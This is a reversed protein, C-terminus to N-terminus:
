SEDKVEKIPGMHHGWQCWLDNSYIYAVTTDTGTDCSVCGIEAKLIRPKGDKNKSLVHVTADKGNHRVSYRPM